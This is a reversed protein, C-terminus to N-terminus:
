PEGLRGVRVADWDEPTLPRLTKAITSDVPVIPRLPVDPTATFLGISFRGVRAARTTRGWNAFASAAEPSDFIARVPGLRDDYLALWATRAENLESVGLDWLPPRADQKSVLTASAEAKCRWEARGRNRQLSYELTFIGDVGDIGPPHRVPILEVDADGPSVAQRAGNWLKPIHVITEDIPVGGPTIALDLVLSGFLNARRLATRTVVIEGPSLEISVIEQRDGRKRVELPRGTSSLDLVSFDTVLRTAAAFTGGFSRISLRSWTMRVGPALNEPEVSLFVRRAATGVSSAADGAVTDQRPEPLVVTMEALAVPPPSTAPCEEAAPANPFQPRQPPSACGSVALVAVTCVGALEM